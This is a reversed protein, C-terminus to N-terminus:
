RQIHMPMVVHKFKDDGVLSFTGPTSPTSLDMVLQTDKAGVVDLLDILYKINFAIEVPEGEIMASVQGVHDGMELSSAKLTVYRGDTETWDDAPILDFRVINASDRAFLHAMKIARLFEQSDMTARTTWGKPMIQNFDPYAYAMIQTALTTPGIKVLLRSSEARPNKIMSLAIDGAENKALKMVAQAFRAPILATEKETFAGPRADISLRFGDAAKASLGDESFELFVCTLVPRSEDTQTAIVVRELMGALAQGNLYITKDPNLETELTPMEDLPMGKFHGEFKGSQATLLNTDEDADLNILESAMSGVWDSFLSHLVSLGGPQEVKAEVETVIGIELDTAWLKLISDEAIIGANALVPLTSRRGIAPRIIELGKSLDKQDVKAKM